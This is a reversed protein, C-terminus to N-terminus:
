TDAFRIRFDIPKGAGDVGEGQALGMVVATNGHVQVRLDTTSSSELKAKAITAVYEARTQVAGNENITVFDPALLAELAKGDGTKHAQEWQRELGMLTQAVNDQALAATSAALVLALVTVTVKM